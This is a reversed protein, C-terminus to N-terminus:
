NRGLNKGFQFQYLYQCLNALKSEFHYNIASFQYSLSIAITQTLCGLWMWLVCPTSDVICFFLNVFTNTIPEPIAKRAELPMPM